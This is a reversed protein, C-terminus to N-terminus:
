AASSTTSSTCSTSAPAAAIAPHNCAPCGVPLFHGGEPAPRKCEPCLRRVLRQALVGLLSSALLFPEVGMDTLRTLASVSDNTHLTALM